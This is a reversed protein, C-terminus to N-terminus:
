TKMIAVEITIMQFYFYIATVPLPPDWMLDAWLHRRPQWGMADAASYEGSDNKEM